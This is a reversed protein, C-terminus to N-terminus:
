VSLLEKKPTVVIKIESRDEVAKDFGDKVANEIYVKSTILPTPDFRGDIIYQVAWKYEELHSHAVTGIVEKEEYMINLAPLCIDADVVSAIICRGARRALDYAQRMANTTGGTDIVV